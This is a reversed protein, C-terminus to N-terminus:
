PSQASGDSIWHLAGGDGGGDGGQIVTRRQDAQWVSLSAIHCEAVDRPIILDALLDTSLGGDTCRHSARDVAIHLGAPCAILRQELDEELVGAHM